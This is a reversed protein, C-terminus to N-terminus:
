ALTPAAARALLQDLARSLLRSIQVQTAGVRAAIDAQTLDEDYRLRLVERVEADLSRILREITARAEARELEPDICPILEVATAGEGDEHAPADISGLVRLTRARVAESMAEERCGLRRALEPVTPPRGLEAHLAHRAPEASLALEQLRRPPRIGWTFDRFHRRLEGLITPTAYAPLEVGREPDWRDVAKVLGLLAVQILDEAPEAGRRYRLAHARALPVHMTILEDRARRDGDRMRRALWAPRHRTM